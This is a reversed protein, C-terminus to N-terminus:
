KVKKLEDCAKQYKLECSKKLYKNKHKPSIPVSNGKEHCKSLMYCGKSDGKKCSLKYYKAASYFDIKVGDKGMAFVDGIIACSHADGKKCKDVELSFDINQQAYALSFSAIVLLILKKM